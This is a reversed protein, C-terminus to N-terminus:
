YTLEKDCNFDIIKIFEQGDTLFAHKLFNKANNVIGSHFSICVHYNINCIRKVYVATHTAYLKFVLM